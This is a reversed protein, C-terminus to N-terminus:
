SVLRKTSAKRAAEASQVDIILVKETDNTIELAKLKPYLRDTVIALAQVAEKKDGQEALEEALEAIRLLPNWDPGFKKRLAIEFEQLRESATVPRLPEPEMPLDLIKTKQLNM